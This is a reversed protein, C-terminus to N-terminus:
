DESLVIMKQIGGIIVEGPQLFFSSEGKRLEVRGYKPRGNEGVPNQVICYQSSSLVTVQVEKVLYEYADLIHSEVHKKEILWEDGAQRDVGYVDQFTKTARLHLALKESLIYGTRVDLM